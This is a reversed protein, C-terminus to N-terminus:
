LKLRELVDLILHMLEDPRNTIGFASPPRDSGPKLVGTYFIVATSPTVQRLAPLAQVGEEPSGGRAIDSVIVDFSEQSLCALASRTTEVSTIHVGLARLTAREWANNEPHDDVWLVRAGSLAESVLRARRLASSLEFIRKAEELLATDLNARRGPFEPSELDAPVLDRGFVRRFTVKTREWAQDLAADACKQVIQSGAFGFAAALITSPDM